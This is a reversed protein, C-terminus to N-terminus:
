RVTRAAIALELLRVFLVLAAAAPVLRRAWDAPFPDFPGSAAASAGTAVFPAAFPAPAFPRRRDAPV